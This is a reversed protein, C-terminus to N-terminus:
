SCTCLLTNHLVHTVLSLAEMRFESFPYHV